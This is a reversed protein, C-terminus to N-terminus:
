DKMTQLFEIIRKRTAEQLVIDKSFLEARLGSYLRVANQIAKILSTKNDEALISRLRELDRAALSTEVRRVGKPLQGNRIHLLPGFITKRLYALSDLTEFYEGRAIKVLTYHIWIWFRDEIWQYGPYPYGTKAQSIKSQLQGGSDYLIVPTEIQTDMEGLTMFKIDVHLLPDDYLCILLRPEGVHEGTFATLLRGFRAAYALMRAKDGTMKEKTVLILDLDSFEDMENTLWSGAVALGIVSADEQVIKRVQEAFQEQIM